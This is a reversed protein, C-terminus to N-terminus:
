KSEEDRKLQYIQVIDFRRSVDSLAKDITYNHIQDLQNLLDTVSETQKDYHRNILETATELSTQFNTQDHSLLFVQALLLQLKIKEQLLERQSPSLLDIEPSDVKQIVIFQQLDRQIDNIFQYGRNDEAASQKFPLDVKTLHADMALPLADIKEILNSIKELAERQELSTVATARLENLQQQTEQQATQVESILKRPKKGLFDVNTLYEAISRQIDTIHGRRDAWQWALFAIAVLIIFFLVLISLHSSKPPATNIERNM